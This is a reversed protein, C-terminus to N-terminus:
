IGAGGDGSEFKRKVSTPIHSSRQDVPVNDYYDRWSVSVERHCSICVRCPDTSTFSYDYGHDSRDQVTRKVSFRYRCECNIQLAGRHLDQVKKCTASRQQAELIDQKLSTIQASAAEILDREIDIRAQADDIVKQAQLFESPQCASCGRCTEKVCSEGGPLPICVCIDLGCDNCYIKSFKSTGATPFM